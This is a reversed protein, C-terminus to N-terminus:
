KRKVPIEITFIAGRETNNEAWIKGHHKEIIESCIALGLGTGGSGDNTKSSQTFTDFILGLENDPIGMGEDLIKIQLANIPESETDGTHNTMLSKKTFITISRNEPTFKLANGVLNLIVQRISSADCESLLLESTFDTKLSIKSNIALTEVENIVSRAIANIDTKEFKFNQKGAELRSLDLLADLLILLRTGSQKIKIFYDQLKDREASTYKKIGFSSFSLIAHMPTRLEHSMNALFQSKSKNAIEAKEKERILAQENKVQQSIDNIIGTYKLNGDILMSKLSMSIPFVSGNKHLGQSIVQSELPSDHSQKSISKFLYEDHHSAIKTPMLKKANMGIAETSSFGFIKEASINFSEIIGELNIIIVGDAMTDLVTNQAIKIQELQKSKIKNLAIQQQNKNKLIKIIYSIFITILLSIFFLSLAYWHYNIKYFKEVPLYKILWKRDAFKLVSGHQVANLYGSTSVRNWWTKNISSNKTNKLSRSKHQFFPIKENSNNTIDIFDINLGKSTLPTLAADVMKKIDFIGIIFSQKREDNRIFSTSTKNYIPFIISYSNNNEKSHTFQVATPKESDSALNLTNLLMNDSGLDFGLLKTNNPTPTIYALPYYFERPQVSIFDGNVRKEKISYNNIFQQQLNQHKKKDTLPIKPVWYLSQVVPDQTLINTFSNFDKYTVDDSSLFFYKIIELEHIYQNFTNSFTRNYETATDALKIEILGQEWNRILIFLAVSISSGIFATLFALQSSNKFFINIKHSKFLAM